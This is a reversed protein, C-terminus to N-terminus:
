KEVGHRKEGQGRHERRSAAGSPAFATDGVEIVLLLKGGTGRRAALFQSAMRHM